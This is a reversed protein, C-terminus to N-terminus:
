KRTFEYIGLFCAFLVMGGAVFGLTLAPKKWDDVFEGDDSSFSSPISITSDDAKDDQYLLQYENTIITPSQNKKM